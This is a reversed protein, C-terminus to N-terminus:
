RTLAELSFLSADMPRDLRVKEMTFRTMSRQRTADIIDVEVPMLRGEIQELRRVEITKLLLGSRAYLETKLPVNRELDVWLIRTAFTMTNQRAELRIVACPRGAYEERRVLTARYSDLYHAGEAIEEYSINSGMLGQRLLSGSIRVTERESPFYMWVTSGLRLMRVGKDEANTFEVLVKDSGAAWTRFRKVLVRTGSTIEMMGEYEITRYTQAAEVARLISEAEAAPEAAHAAVATGSLLMLVLGCAQLVRIFVRAIYRPKM